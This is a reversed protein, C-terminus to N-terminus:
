RESMSEGKPGSKTVLNAFHLGFANNQDSYKSQDSNKTAIKKGSITLNRGEVLRLLLSLSTSLHRWHCAEQPLLQLILM